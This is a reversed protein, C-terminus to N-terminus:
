HIQNDKRKFIDMARILLLMRTQCNGNGTQPHIQHWKYKSLKTTLQRLKFSCDKAESTLAQSRDCNGRPELNRNVFEKRSSKWVQASGPSNDPFNFFANGQKTKKQKWRNIYRTKKGRGRVSLTKKRSQGFRPQTGTLKGQNLSVINSLSALYVKLVM